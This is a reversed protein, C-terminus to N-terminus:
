RMLGDWFGLSAGALGVGVTTVAIGAVVRGWRSCWRYGRSALFQSTREACAGAAILPLVHGLGFGMMIGAGELWTAQAVALALVPALFGFTCAGSFVGFIAGLLLAGARGRLGRPLRMSPFRLRAAGMMELGLLAIGFGAAAGVFPPLEGLLEGAASTVLGIIAISVWLGLGFLASVLAAESVGERAKNGSVYAVILPVSSLHCPSLFLSAAGWALAGIFTAGSLLDYAKLFLAEM